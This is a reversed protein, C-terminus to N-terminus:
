SEARPHVDHHQHHWGLGHLEDSGADVGRRGHSTRRCLIRETVGTVCGTTDLLLYCIERARTSRDFKLTAIFHVNNVFSPLERLCIYVILLYGNSKVCPLLQEQGLSTVTEPAEIASVMFTDHRKAMWKPVIVNVSKNRLGSEAYGLIRCAAKSAFKILGTNKGEGSVCICATGDRMYPGTFHFETKDEEAQENDENERRANKYGSIVKMLEGAADTDNLVEKLFTAYMTVAKTANPNIRQMQAWSDEIESTAQSIRTGLIMLVQVDPSPTGLERWFDMHWKTSREITKRFQRYYNDYAITSVVDMGVASGQKAVSDGMGEQLIRTYRYIIFNQDFAPNCDDAAKRFQALAADKSEICELLYFAYRIRLGASEKHRKLMKQYQAKVHNLLLM